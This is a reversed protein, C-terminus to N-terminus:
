RSQGGELIEEFLDIVRPDDRQGLWFLARSRIRPDDHERALRILAPVADSARQQSLAFVARELIDMPESADGAVSELGEVAKDSAAQGVWFLAAKRVEDPLTEDRAVTLLQPWSEVSDALQAPMVAARAVGPPGARVLSMLYRSAEIAGTRGLNQAPAGERWRGGVFSELEVTRGAERTLVVHVPGHDCDPEWNENQRDGFRLSRGDGCVGARARFTFRVVGDRVGDVRLTLDTQAAGPAASLALVLGV